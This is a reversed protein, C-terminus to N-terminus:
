EREVVQYVRQLRGTTAEPGYFCERLHTITELREEVTAAAWYERDQRALEEHTAVVVRSRDM